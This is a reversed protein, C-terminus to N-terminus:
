RKKDNKKGASWPTLFGVWPISRKQHDLMAGVIEPDVSPKLGHTAGGANERTFAYGTLHLEVDDLYQTTFGGDPLKKRFGDICVGTKNDIPIFVGDQPVADGKNVEKVGPMRTLKVVINVNKGKLDEM